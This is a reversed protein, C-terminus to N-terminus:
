VVAAVSATVSQHPLAGLRLQWQAPYLAPSPDSPQDNKLLDAKKLFKLMGMM